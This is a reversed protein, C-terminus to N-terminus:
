QINGGECVEERDERAITVEMTHENYYELFLAKVLITAHEISMGTAIIVGDIIVRYTIESM